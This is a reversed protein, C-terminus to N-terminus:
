SIRIVPKRTSWSGILALVLLAALSILFWTLGIVPLLITLTFLAGIASGIIEWAYGVGRNTQKEDGYYINTAAVFLTGTAVAVVFLFFMHFPLLADPGIRNWMTLFLITSVLLIILAPFQLPGDGARYSYYTGLALGLMFAGILLAMESYLSGAMTQYIYFSILELSLSATGATFYLFIGFRGSGDEGSRTM